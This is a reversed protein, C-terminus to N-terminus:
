RPEDPPQDGDTPDTTGTGPEGTPPADGAPVSPQQAPATEPAPPASWVPGAAPTPGSAGGGPAAGVPAAPPPPLAARRRRVSRRVLLVVVVLPVALLLVVPLVAIVFWITGDAIRQLGRTVATLADRVTESPAWTPDALPLAARAPRITVTVTSLATRDALVDLQAQLRDIDSRVMRTQEFVVLLEQASDTQERVETLLQRLETEYATLNALQARLDATQTTVDVEDIRSVPVAAALADLAEVTPMLEASPVRLVITGQVVGEADRSLDTSAVFGGADEAIRVAEDAVAAPDDAELVLTATRIVERGHEAAARGPDAPAPASGAVADDFGDEVAMDGAWDADFGDDFGAEPAPESVAIDERDVMMADDASACGALLLATTLAGATLRLLTRPRARRARHARDTM